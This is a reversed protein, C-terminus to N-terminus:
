LPAVTCLHLFGNEILFTQTYKKYVTGKKLNKLEM